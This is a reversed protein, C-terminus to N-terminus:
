SAPLNKKFDEQVEPKSKPHQPRVTMKRFNLKKLVKGVSREHLKVNFCKEIVAQLDVRRWRIVKHEDPNPGAEVIVALEALQEPTLRTPPGPHPRDWLGALGESNYRHVWDRLTQRDMGVLHAAESRTAGDMVHALALM